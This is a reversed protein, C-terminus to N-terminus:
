QRKEVANAIRELLNEVRQRHARQEFVGSRRIVAVVVALVLLQPVLSYLLEILSM